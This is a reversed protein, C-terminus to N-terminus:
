GTEEQTDPEGLWAGSVYARQDRKGLRDAAAVALLFQEHMVPRKTRRCQASRTTPRPAYRDWDGVHSEELVELVADVPLWRGSV